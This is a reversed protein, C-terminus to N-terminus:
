YSVFVGIAFARPSSPPSAIGSSGRGFACSIPSPPMERRSKRFVAAPAATVNPPPMASAAHPDDGLAVCVVVPPGLDLGLRPPVSRRPMVPADLVSM